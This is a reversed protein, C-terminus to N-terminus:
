LGRASCREDGAGHRKISSTQWAAVIKGTDARETRRRRRPETFSM